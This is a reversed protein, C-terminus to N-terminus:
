LVRILGGCGITTLLVPRSLVISHLFSTLPKLLLWVALYVCVCVSGTLPLLALLHYSIQAM